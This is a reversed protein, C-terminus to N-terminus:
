LHCNIQHIERMIVSRLSVCQHIFTTTQPYLWISKFAVQVKYYNGSNFYNSMYTWIEYFSHVIVTSHICHNQTQFTEVIVADTPTDSIYIISAPAISM